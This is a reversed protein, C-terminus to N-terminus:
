KIGYKIKQTRGIEILMIKCNCNEQAIAIYALEKQIM